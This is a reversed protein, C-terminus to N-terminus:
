VTRLVVTSGVKVIYVGKALKLSLSEASANQYVMQGMANYIVVPERSGSIHLTGSVAFVKVDSEKVDVDKANDMEDSGTRPAPDNTLIIDDLYVEATETLPDSWDIMIIMREVAVCDSIDFVVDVWTGTTTIVAGSTPGPESCGARVNVRPEIAKNSYMKIHMYSYGQIPNGFTTAFTNGMEADDIKPGAWPVNGSSRTSYMVNNSPNIGSKDPNATISVPEPGNWNWGIDGNEFDDFLYPDTTQSPGSRVLLDKLYQGAYALSGDPRYLWFGRVDNARYGNPTPPTAPASATLENCYLEWHLIWPIDLAFFVALSRDWFDIINSQKKGQEPYGIEGIMVTPEPLYGSHQMFHRILEIGHWLDVVSSLGDYCSWSILDPSINPLVKETLTPTGDLLTLVRNVEVAHLIKCASGAHNARARELGTQRATFWRTFYDIRRPLDAMMQQDWTTSYNGNFLWDGEWNQFIFTVDRESFKTYLYNALEEFQVTYESFDNNPSDFGRIGNLHTIELIITSFPLNFVEDYYPHQALDVLRYPRPLASWNSGFSYKEAPAEFWLKCVGSGFELIKKAGEVLFPEQTLHYKGDVHTAGLRDRLNAPIAGGASPRHAAVQSMIEAGSTLPISSAPLAPCAFCVCSFATM